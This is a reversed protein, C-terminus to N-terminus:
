AHAPCTLHVYNKSDRQPVQMYVLERQFRSSYHSVKENNHTSANVGGEGGYDM